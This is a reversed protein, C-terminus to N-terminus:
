NQNEKLLNLFEEPIEIKKFDKKSVFVHTTKTTARKIGDEDVFSITLQFSSNGIKSVILNAILVEHLRIPEHFDATTNVLPIAFSDNEFYSDKVNSRLIFEEYVSHSLDFIKAFFLVGASDCMGFEVIREAEFM